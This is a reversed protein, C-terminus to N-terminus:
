PHFLVDAMTNMPQLMLPDDPSFQQCLVRIDDRCAFYAEIVDPDWQRGASSEFVRETQEIPLGIRYPRDSTMADYSDAVAIIRAMLPIEEGALGDPYGTGDFSEHHSRVGPLIAKLNTLEELIQYGIVPHQKIAIFEEETLEGPKQLTADNVAVKGIDHLLGALFLDQLEDDPLGLEEGLRRSIDAVRQSHGRTYPDKADLTSVLSRVFSLLLEDHRRYLDTNRIHTELIKAISEVLGTEAEGFGRGSDTQCNCGIVWGRRNAGAGVPVIAFNVLGPYDAALETDRVANEVLPVAWDHDDYDAILHALELEDFPVRGKRLLRPQRHAEQLWIASGGIDLLGCMQKLCLEALEDAEESVQLLDTFGQLLRFGEHAALKRNSGTEQQRLRGDELRGRQIVSDLLARLMKASCVEDTNLWANSRAAAEPASEVSREPAEAHVAGVAVYRVNQEAALPFRFFLFNPPAEILDIDGVRDLHSRVSLPLQDPLHPHSKAVIRETESDVCLMQLGSWEAYRRM